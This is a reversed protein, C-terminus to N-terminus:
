LAYLFLGPVTSTGGPTTVSVSVLGLAHAPTTATISLDSAVVVSTAAVGGFSVATAGTFGTGTITVATGGAVSGTPPTVLVVLPLPPLASYTFLGPVTSTGAPTTVSVAVLGAAHAPTTATISTDSSVVVDTAAVGDFAVATAGSFGTGTITVATGGTIPGTLPAVLVVVPPLPPAPLYTFLGPVSSTGVPTTVSVAVPGAAHAPTTATISTDSSVVISTGATGGFTVGTAGTFATGTITVVTGGDMSGAAPSVLLVVPPSGPQSEYTYTKPGSMGAPTVVRVDVAGAAHAPATASVSTDSQVTFTAATGGFSVATAGTFGTGTIQVLTGGAAPGSSPALTTVVPAKGVYTFRAKKTAKSKGAKTKVRVPVVGAAHAPAIVIIKRPNKVTVIRARTGGITVKKVKTFGKGKVKVKTGGATPGSAPKVKKVKPKPAKPKAAGDVVQGGTAVSPHAQVPGVGLAVVMATVLAVAGGRVRSGM